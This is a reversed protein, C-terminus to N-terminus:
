GVSLLGHAVQDEGGVRLVLLRRSRVGSGPRRRASRRNVAFGTPAVDGAVTIETDREKLLCNRRRGATNKRRGHNVSRQGSCSNSPGAGGGPLFQSTPSRPYLSKGSARRYAQRM